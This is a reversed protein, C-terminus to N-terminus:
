GINQFPNVHGQQTRDVKENIIIEKVGEIQLITKNIQDKNKETLSEDTSNIIIKGNDAEVHIKSTVGLLGVRVKAALALDEVM